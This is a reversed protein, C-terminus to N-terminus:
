SAIRSFSWCSPGLATFHSTDDDILIALDLPKAAPANSTPNELVTADVLAVIAPALHHALNDNSAEDGIGRQGLESLGHGQVRLGEM